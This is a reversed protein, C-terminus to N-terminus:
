IQSCKLAGLLGRREGMSCNFCHSYSCCTKIYKLLKDFFHPDAPDLHGGASSCVGVKDTDPYVYIFSHTCGSFVVIKQRDVLVLREVRFDTKDELFKIVIDALM